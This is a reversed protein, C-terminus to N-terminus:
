FKGTIELYYPSIAKGKSIKMSYKFFTENARPNDAKRFGRRLTLNLLENARSVSQSVHFRGSEPAERFKRDWFFPDNPKRFAPLPIGRVKLRAFSGTKAFNLVDRKERRFRDPFM